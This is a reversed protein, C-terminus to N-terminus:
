RGGERRLEALLELNKSNIGNLGSAFATQADKRTDIGWTTIDEVGADHLENIVDTSVVGNNIAVASIERRSLRPRFEELREHSSITYFLM